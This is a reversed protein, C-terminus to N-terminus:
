GAAVESVGSRNRSPGDVYACGGCYCKGQEVDDEYDDSSGITLPVANTIAAIRKAETWPLWSGAVIVDPQFLRPPLATESEHARWGKSMDVGDREVRVFLPENLTEACWAWENPMRADTIVVPTGLPVGDLAIEAAFIWIRPDVDRMSAGTVQLLRRVEDKTKAGDWGVLEVLRRLHVHGDVLPDVELLAKKLADAFAIRRYGYAEILAKALTDKGAGAPGTLVVDRTTLM